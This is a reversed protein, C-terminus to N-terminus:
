KQFLGTFGARVKAAGTGSNGYESLLKLASNNCTRWGPLWSKGPHIEM